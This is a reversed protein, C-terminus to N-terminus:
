GNAEVGERQLASMADRYQTAIMRTEAACRKAIDSSLAGREVLRDLSEATQDAERAFVGLLQIVRTHNSM